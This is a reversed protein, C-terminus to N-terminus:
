IVPRPFLSAREASYAGREGEKKKGGKGLSSLPIFTKKEGGARPMTASRGRASDGDGNREGKKKEKQADALSTV